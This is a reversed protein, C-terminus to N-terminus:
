DKIYQDCYGKCSKEIQTLRCKTKGNVVFEKDSYSCDKCRVVEVLKKSEYKRLIDVAIDLDGIDEQMHYKLIRVLILTVAEKIEM